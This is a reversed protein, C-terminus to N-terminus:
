GHEEGGPLGKAGAAPIFKSNHTHIVSGFIKEM